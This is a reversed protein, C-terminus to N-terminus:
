RRKPEARQFTIGCDKEIAVKEIADFQGKARRLEAVTTDDDGSVMLVAPWFVTMALGTAVADSSAKKDQIGSVRAVDTALRTAETRIQDCTYHAYHLPSIYRPQIDASTSACKSVNLLVLAICLGRM